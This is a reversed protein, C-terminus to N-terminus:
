LQCSERLRNRRGSKTMVATVKTMHGELATIKAACAARLRGSAIAIVAHVRREGKGVFIMQAQQRAARSQVKTHSTKAISKQFPLYYAFVCNQQVAMIEGALAAATRRWRFRRRPSIATTVRWALECTQLRHLPWLIAYLFGYQTTMGTDAAKEGSRPEGEPSTKSRGPPLREWTMSVNAM